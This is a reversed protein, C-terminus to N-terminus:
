LFKFSESPATTGMMASSTSRSINTKSLTSTPAVAGSNKPYFGKASYGNSSPIPDSSRSDHKAAYALETLVEMPQALQLDSPRYLWLLFVMIVSYLSFVGGILILLGSLFWIKWGYIIMVIVTALTGLDFFVPVGMWGLTFGLGFFSFSFASSVALFILFFLILLFFNHESPIVGGVPVPPVEDSRLGERWGFWVGLGILVWSCVRLVSYLEPIFFPPHYIDTRRFYIQWNFAAAAHVFSFSAIAASGLFLLLGVWEEPSPDYLSVM